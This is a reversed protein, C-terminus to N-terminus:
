CLLRDPHLSLQGCIYAAQFHSEQAVKRERERKKERVTSGTKRRFLTNTCLDKEWPRSGLSGLYYILKWFWCLSHLIFSIYFSLSLTFNQKKLMYLSQYLQMNGLAAHLSNLLMNHPLRSTAGRGPIMRWLVNASASVSKRQSFERCVLCLETRNLETAWDHGVRQLGMFRLVGPRGAWWWSGSNVWVWTWRTLSSM